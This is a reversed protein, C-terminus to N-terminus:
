GLHSIKNFIRKERTVVVGPRYKFFGALGLASRKPPYKLFGALGLGSRTRPALGDGGQYKLFGALSSRCLFHLYKLFGALGPKSCSAFHPRFTPWAEPVVRRHVRNLFQGYKLYGALGRM